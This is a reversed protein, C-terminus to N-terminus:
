VSIKGIAIGLMTLSILTVAIIGGMMCLTFFLGTYM